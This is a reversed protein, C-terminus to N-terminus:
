VADSDATADNRPAAILSLMTSTMGRPSRGVLRRTARSPEADAATEGTDGTASADGGSVADAREDGTVVLGLEVDETEASEMSATDRSARGCGPRAIVNARGPARSGKAAGTGGVTPSRSETSWTISAIVGSSAARRTGDRASTSEAALSAVIFIRREPRVSSTGGSLLPPSITARM